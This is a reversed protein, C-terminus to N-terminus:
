ATVAERETAAAHQWPAALARTFRALLQLEVAPAPRNVHVTQELHM